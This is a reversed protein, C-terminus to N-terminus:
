REYETTTEKSLTTDVTGNMEDGYGSWNGGIPIFEVEFDNTSANNDFTNYLLWSSPTMLIRDNYPAKDISLTINEVGNLINAQNVIINSASAYSTNNFRTNGLSDYLSVNGDQDVHLTNVFWDVSDVSENGNINFQTKNCDNCYVEYYIPAVGSTGEFTQKNTHVRGYYFTANKDLNQTGFTGNSDTTNINQINLIFPNVTKTKNRDFNIDVHINGSGNDDTSFITNPINSLNLDSNISVNGETSTNTERYLVKSLNSTSINAYSITYNTPMAYCNSNYNQTTANLENKATIKIDLTTSMNLDDSIYTFNNGGQVLTTNIDFHDPSFTLNIDAPTILRQVDSTDNKDVVAFESGNIEQVKVNIVGVENYNTNIIKSGDSFLITSISPNFVGKNCAVKTENYDIPISENYNTTSNNLKDKALFTLNYDRGSVYPPSTSISLDFKDPRLAFDDSDASKAYGSKPTGNLGSNWCDTWNLDDRSCYKFKFFLRKNAKGKIDSPWASNPIEFRGTTKNFDSIEGFYHLDTSVENSGVIQTTDLFIGASVDKNPEISSLDDTLLIVDFELTDNVIKTTLKTNSLESGIPISHEIVKFPGEILGYRTTFDYNDEAMCMYDYYPYNANWDDNHRVRGQDDFLFNLWAGASYNGNPEYYPYSSSTKDFNDGAGTRSIFWKDTKNLDYPGLISVWGKYGMTDKYEYSSNDTNNTDTSSYNGYSYYDRNQDGSDNEKRPYDSTIEPINHMPSGSMWSPIDRSGGYWSTPQNGNTPFYVGFSGYPWIISNRETSLYYNNGHLANVKEQITGTYKDWQSKNDYLFKRVREFTDETNPVFPFLGLKSCSDSKNTLDSKNITRRGDLDLLFTWVWDLDTQYWCYAVIPRQSASNIDNSNYSRDHNNPKIWYHGKISESALWNEPVSEAMLKCTRELVETGNENESPKYFLYRYDDLIKLKLNNITCTANSYDLTNIKVAQNYYGKRLKSEDCNSIQSNSWDIAFPTGILNINSFSSGMVQFNDISIPSPNSIDTIVELTNANIEIATFGKSNDQAEKYYDSSSLTDSNFVFNNFENKNPLAIYDKNNYCFIEISKNVDNFPDIVHFGNSLSNSSCYSASCEAWGADNISQDYTFQGQGIDISNNANIAGKIFTPNGFTANGETYVTANITTGGGGTELDGNIFLMFNAAPLSTDYNGKNGLANIGPNNGLSLDSNLFINILQSEDIARMASVDSTGPISLNSNIYYNGSSLLISSSSSETLNNVRFLVRKGSTYPYINLIVTQNLTLDSIDIYDAYINIVSDGSGDNSSTFNNINIYPAKLDINSGRGVTFSDMKITQSAEFDLNTQSVLNFTHIKINKANTDTYITNSAGNNEIGLTGIELSYPNSSQFSFTNDNTMKLTNIKLQNTINFTTDINTHWSTTIDNYEYESQTSDSSLTIDNTSSSPLSQVTATNPTNIYNINLTEGSTGSQTCDGKTGCTEFQNSIWTPTTVECTNLINDNNDL